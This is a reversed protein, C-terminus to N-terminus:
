YGSMKLLLSYKCMRFVVRDVVASTGRDTEQM